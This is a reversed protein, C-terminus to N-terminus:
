NVKAKVKDDESLLLCIYESMGKVGDQIEDPTVNEKILIIALTLCAIVAHARSTLDPLSMLLRDVLEQIEAGTAHAEVIPTNM